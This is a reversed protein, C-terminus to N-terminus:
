YSVQILKEVEDLGKLEPVRSSSNTNNLLSLLNDSRYIEYRIRGATPILEFPEELMGTGDRANARFHMSDYIYLRARRQNGLFSAWRVFTSKATGIIEKQTTKLLCFDQVGSNGDVIRVEVGPHLSQILDRIEEVKENKIRTVIAVKDGGHLDHFLESAIKFPSLEGFGLKEGYKKMEGIFNRYHFVTENPDARINCCVPDDENMRFLQRLEHEFELSFMAMRKVNIIPLSVDIGSLGDGFWRVTTETVNNDTTNTTTSNDGLQHLHQSSSEQLALNRRYIGEVVDKMSTRMQQKVLSHLGESITENKSLFDWEPLRAQRELM